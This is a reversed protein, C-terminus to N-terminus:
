YFLLINGSARSHTKHRNCAALVMNGSVSELNAKAEKQEKDYLGNRTSLEM